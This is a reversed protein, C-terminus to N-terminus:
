PKGAVSPSIASLGGPAFWPRSDAKGDGRRRSKGPPLPPPADNGPALPLNSSSFCFAVDGDAGLFYAPPIGGNWVEVTCNHSDICAVVAAVYRGTPSQEHVAWNMEEVIMGVALGKSVMSYFIHNIPLLNLAAPLGHGTSDALMVYLRGNRSRLVAVLDGSVVETPQIYLERVGLVHVKEVTAEDKVMFHNSFMPHVLWSCNLDQVYMGPALQHISIKKIM